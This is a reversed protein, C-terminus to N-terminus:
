TASHVRNLGSWILEATDIHQPWEHRGGVIRYHTVASGLICSTWRQTEVDNHSTGEKENRCRNHEARERLWDQVPPQGKSPNGEYRVVRDGTGHVNVVPLPRTPTCDGGGPYFAGAVTAYGALRGSLRCGLMAAFGGGNSLGVAHVRTTDVCFRGELHNILDNIFSVDDVSSSYPAGQWATQGDKGALAQPYVAIVDLESLGSTREMTAGTSGRGHLGIVLPAVKRGADAPVHVRYSREVGGSRLTGTGTFSGGCDAGTQGM